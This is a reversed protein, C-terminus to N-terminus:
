LERKFFQLDQEAIFFMRKMAGDFPSQFQFRPLNDEAKDSGQDGNHSWTAAFFM